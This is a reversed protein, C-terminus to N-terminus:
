LRVLVCCCISSWQLTHDDLLMVKWTRCIFGLQGSKGNVILSKVVSVVCSTYLCNVICPMIFSSTGEQVYDAVGLPTLLLLLFFM